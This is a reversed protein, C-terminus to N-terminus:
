VRTNYYFGTSVKIDPNVSIQKCFLYYSTLLCELWERDIMVTPRLSSSVRRQRSQKGLIVQEAIIPATATKRATHSGGCTETNSNM